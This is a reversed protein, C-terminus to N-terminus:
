LRKNLAAALDVAEAWADLLKELRDARHVHTMRHTLGNIHARLEAKVSIMIDYFKVVDGAEYVPTFNEDLTFIHLDFDEEARWSKIAERIMDGHGRRTLLDVLGSIEAKIAARLSRREISYELWKVLSTGAIALFGGMFVSLINNM